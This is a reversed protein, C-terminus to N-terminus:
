EAALSFSMLISSLGNVFADTVTAENFTFNIFYVREDDLACMQQICTRQDGQPYVFGICCYYRRDSSLTVLPAEETIQCGPFTSEIQKKFVPLMTVAFLLPEQADDQRKEAVISVNGGSVPEVFSVMGTERITRAVEEGNPAFALANQANTETDIVMWSADYELTYGLTPHHYAIVEGLAASFVSLSLLVALLVATLKKM